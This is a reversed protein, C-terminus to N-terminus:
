NPDRIEQNDVLPRQVPKVNPFNYRLVDTLGWNITAKINVIKEIGEVTLHEKRRIMMVVEKFLLYDALKHTNLPYENFHNIIVMLGTVSSVTYQVAEEGLKSISGIGGLYARILELLPRDKQHL